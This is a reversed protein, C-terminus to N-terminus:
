DRVGIVDAPESNDGSIVGSRTIGAIACNRDDELGTILFGRAGGRGSGSSIGSGALPTKSQQIQKVENGLCGDRLDFWGRTLM